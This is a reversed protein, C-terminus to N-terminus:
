NSRGILIFGAWYFPHRYQQGKMLSLASHQLAIAKNNARPPQYFNKMLQSTSESNVKWQSVLMSRTGAVFFAWSMGVVGEGPSISGNATECASLVALDAQLNMNMIERAELLGDNEPDGESKTLLLHSYLPQRNDIIGHTALHITSYTPALTRFTKETAERGILVKRGQPSFSGAISNVEAEAEPLPCLEENRQEDKGIVPNGFAILSADTRENTSSKRKMERLVSLSPAYYLPHDEILFRGDKTMLAQFPLNWLFSDPVICFTTHRLQTEAPSLLVRYLELALSAYEPHRNALRDHFLTVKNLLERPEIGLQYSRIEAVSNSPDKTLVFLWVKGRTVVYELYATDTATLDRVEAASLETTRGSRRRLDPHTVYISDQFAQYELRATDLQSYLPNGAADVSRKACENLDSIRRNLRLQQDKEAQTLSKWFDTKNGSVVDLLVRAKAREAYLLAEIPREQRALIDVLAHYSTLKNEFYLQSATERGAVQDRLTELQETAQKLTKTALEIKKQAAYSQGLTTTALYTLKLLHSARALGAASEALAAAQGFDEMEYYTQATRWLLEIQRTKDRIDKATALAQNLVELAANCDNKATLVAGIGESAAIAVDINQTSKATKLSLKLQVLAQDYNSQRQEVVGLNLLLRAAEKQNNTSVYITLSEEFCKKAQAYDEQELYLIGISNLVNAIATVDHLPRFIKLAQNLFLLAQTYDGSATYVRGLTQLDGAVYPDFSSGGRNLEQYLALSQRLRTIAQQFDGDRLNLDALTALATAKGYEDPWAGPPVQTREKQLLALSQESYSAARQYDEQIFYILGLDALIYTLDRRLGAEEFLDKSKEYAAVAKSLQNLGSHTRGISYYTMALLKSSQLQTAVQKAIAYTTLAQEPSGGYYDTVAHDILASWLQSNMLQPHSKLLHERSQETQRAQCLASVLDAQSEIPPNDSQGVTLM